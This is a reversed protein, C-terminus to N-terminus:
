VILDDAGRVIGMQECFEGWTVPATRKVKKRKNIAYVARDAMGETMCPRGIVDLGTLHGDFCHDWHGVFCYPVAQRINEFEVFVYYRGARLGYTNVSRALADFENAPLAIM